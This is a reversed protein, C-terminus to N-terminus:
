ILIPKQSLHTNNYTRITAKEIQQQWVVSNYGMLHQQYQDKTSLDSRVFQRVSILDNHQIRPLSLKKATRRPHPSSVPRHQTISHTRLGLENLSSIRVQTKGANKKLNVKRAVLEASLTFRKKLRNANKPM